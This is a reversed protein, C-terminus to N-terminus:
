ILLCLISHLVRGGIRLPLNFLKLKITEEMNEKQFFRYHYKENNENYQRFRHNCKKIYSKTKEFLLIKM